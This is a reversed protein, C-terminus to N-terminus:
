NRAQPGNTANRSLVVLKGSSFCRAYGLATFRGVADPGPPADALTVIVPPKAADIASRDEALWEARKYKRKPDTIATTWFFRGPGRREALAYIEPEFGRVSVVDRPSTHERLWRAVAESDHEDYALTPISFRSAFSARPLVGLVYELSPAENALWVRSPNGSIGFLVAVALAGAGPWAPMLRARAHELGMVIPGVLLVSHYRYFKLQVAVAVLALVALAVVRWPLDSRARAWRARVLVVLAVGLLLDSFPNFWTIVNVLAEFLEGPTDVARSGVLYQTDAGFLVDRMPGLAHHLAFYALTLGIPLAAGAAVGALGRARPRAVDWALPAVLLVAPPKMLFTLGVFIGALFHRGRRGAVLAVFAFMLAWIECQATDWFSFYGYYVVFTAFLVFGTSVEINKPLEFRILASTAWGLALVCGIEVVRIGWMQEGLVRVLLGHIAFIGPTKYDFTDRYPIAGHLFWERGVYYHVGQDHGFPYVISLAGLAVGLAVLGLDIKAEIARRLWPHVSARNM